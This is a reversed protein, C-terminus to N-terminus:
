NNITEILWLLELAKNKTQEDKKSSGNHGGDKVIHLNVVNDKNLDRLKYGYKIGEWFGVRVDNTGVVVLIPPYIDNNLNDIPSWNYIYAASERDNPNGWESYEGLTLPLTEDNMTSFVDLFPVALLAGSAINRDINLLSAVAGAGASDGELVIKDLVGISRLYNISDYADNFTNNKMLKNGSKHWARGKEGGGRVHLITYNIGKKLLIDREPSWFPDISEGYAGYFYVVSNKSGKHSKIMSIEIAVGDRSLAEYREYSGVSKGPNKYFSYNLIERNNRLDLEYIKDCALWSSELYELNGNSLICELTFSKGEESISKVLEGQFNYVEISLGAGDRVNLYIYNEDYIYNEIKHNIRIIETSIAGKSEIDIKSITSLGNDNEHSVLTINHFGKFLYDNQEDSRISIKEDINGEADLIFVKEDKANHGIESICFINSDNFIDIGLTRDAKNLTYIIERKQTDINYKVVYKGEYGDKDIYFINGNYVEIEGDSKDSIVFEVGNSDLLILKYIENNSQDVSYIFNNNVYRYDGIVCESQKYLEDFDILKKVSGARVGMELELYGERKDRGKYFFVRGFKDNRKKEFFLLGDDEKTPWDLDRSTATIKDIDAIIATLKENGLLSNNRECEDVIIEELAQEDVERVGYYPDTISGLSSNYSKKYDKM